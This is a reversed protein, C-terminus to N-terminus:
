EELPKLLIAALTEETLERAAGAYEARYVVAGSRVDVLSATASLRPGKYGEGQLDKRYYERRGAASSYVSDDDASRRPEPSGAELIVSAVLAAEAGRAKGVAAAREPSWEGPATKTAHTESREFGIERLRQALQAQLMAPELAGSRDYVDLVAIRVAKNRLWAEDRASVVPEVACGAALAAFGGLLALAPLRM